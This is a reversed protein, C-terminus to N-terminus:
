ADNEIAMMMEITPPRAPMIEAAVPAMASTM